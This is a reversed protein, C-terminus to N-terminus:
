EKVFNGRYTKDAKVQVVYMGTSLESIDVRVVGNQVTPTVSKVFAGQLQYIDIQKRHHM